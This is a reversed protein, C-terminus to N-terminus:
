RQHSIATAASVEFHPRPRVGLRLTTSPALSRECPVRPRACSTVGTLTRRVCTLARDYRVEDTSALPEFNDAGLYRTGMWDRIDTEMVYLTGYRTPSAGKQFFVEGEGELIRLWPTEQLDFDSYGADNFGNSDWRRAFVTTTGDIVLDVADEDGSRTLSLIGQSSRLSPM